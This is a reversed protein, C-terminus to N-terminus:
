VLQSLKSQAEQLQRGLDEWLQTQKFIADELNKIQSACQSAKLGDSYVESSAMREQEGALAQELGDIEELLEGEQRRLRRVLAQLRKQEERFDAADSVVIESQAAIESQSAVSPQSSERALRELYYAYNGLFMRHRGNRTLELTRTSLAQMFGQDHSVFIVTGPYDQLAQLLVDKSHIDLHNTPEDLILLNVPRLLLSLLALRSKEGGSLVQLSKYIDDGRFLFAGLLDRLRPILATPARGELWSLIDTDGVLDAAVDQSFYGISVDTGLEFSGEYDSDIGALIRLLTSKGAGNKGVVLLKEGAEISVDLKGIVRHQGYVRGLGYGRLVLRGSHPPEPFRLRIKKLNEPIEIRELKELRKVREQVMVARTAQYRFRRIFDETKAIEEQQAQYRRVLGELEVQRQKEYDSYSGAYRRLQGQWLEYTETTTVDLFYRDHSVLLYGGKFNLLWAELWTRAEIDLYNTPEDLLIIDPHSLLVKALAVRMQWGGSFEQVPREIDGQEFGLGELVMSISAARRYYNSDEVLEQLRHLEELLGAIGTDGEKKHSLLQGLEDIRLLVAHIHEWALELEQGLSRDRHEIGSQPLYVIRAGKEIAREGSDAAIIGAMVKMLTTKGSGNAGALAARTGGSLYVNVEQLIDRDGFALSVQTFQVFAM